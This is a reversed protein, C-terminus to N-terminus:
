TKYVERSYFTEPKVATKKALFLEKLSVGNLVFINIDWTQLFFRFCM